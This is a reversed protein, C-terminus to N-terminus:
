RAAEIDPLQWSKDFLAPGPGYLRFITFWQRGASTPIWNSEKGDPARPGFYLDVSGDLNTQLLEDYSNLEVRPSDRLFAATEADYVTAAWFQRAPVPAPVRLRYSREGTLLHRYGDVWATLYASAKGLKAPPACALFYMLARAEVDLVGDEEFTFGTRAGVASPWRWARNPWHTNGELPAKRMFEDRATAAATSLIELMTEDPAFDSGKDFGFAHLVRQMDADRPLAPEEGLMRALSAYFSEDFRVIGDFPKGGLNIFRQEPPHSIQSPPYLRLRKVLELANHAAAHSTGEAIARFVAYGNFTQPRVALYGGPPEARYDPPLLIYRGGRGQDAGEPGVDVLPVQWADLISGFLGAGIAPPIELVLPGDHTNFNFYVYRTAANPTTIQFNSGAFKSLYAIDGYNASADRFFAQRMADFSVIPMAWVATEVALEHLEQRSAAASTRTTGRARQPSRTGPKEM